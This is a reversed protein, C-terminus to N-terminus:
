KILLQATNGLVTNEANLKNKNPKAFKISNLVAFTIIFILCVLLLSLFNVIFM